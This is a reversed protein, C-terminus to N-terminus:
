SLDARDLYYRWLCRELMLVALYIVGGAFASLVIASFLLPTDVNYTAMLITFGLGRRAGTLEGVIAGVVALTSSVKLAAIIYPVAIPLCLKTLMEWRTASLSRMLDVAEINASRIGTTVGIVLPFFAVIAAMIVKSGLGYGFWLVLLPAIAIIPIAKLGILFPLITREATRSYFFIVGTIFSFLNALLFGLFAELLTIGLDLLLTTQKEWLASFIRTPSPVLYEPVQKLRLILELVIICFGLILITTIWQHSAKPPRIREAKIDLAPWENETRNM